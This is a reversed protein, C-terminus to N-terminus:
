ERLGGRRGRDGRAARVAVGSPDATGVEAAGRDRRFLSLQKRCVTREQNRSIVWLMTELLIQGARCVGSM